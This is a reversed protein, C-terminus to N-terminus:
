NIEVLLYQEQSMGTIIPHTPNVELVQPPLKGLEGTNASHQVMKMMKRLAGSEHDTVIAPSDSLRNTTKVDLVRGGGLVYKLWACVENAETDSLKGATTTSQLNEKDSETTNSDKKASDESKTKDAADPTKAQNFDIDSKEVSVLTRGNYTKLNTMVFDDITNYLLLVEKKHKQFLEMYPSTLAATRSPAVVYYVEKQEPPCRAIYEDFTTLETEGLTSSQFM